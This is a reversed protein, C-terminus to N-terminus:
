LGLLLDDIQWYEILRLMVIPCLGLSNFHLRGFRSIKFLFDMDFSKSKM